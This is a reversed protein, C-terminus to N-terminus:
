VLFVMEAINCTQNFTKLINVAIKLLEDMSNGIQQEHCLSFAVCTGKRHAESQTKIEYM